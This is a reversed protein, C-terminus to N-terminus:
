NRGTKGAYAEVFGTMQFQKRLNSWALQMAVDTYEHPLDDTLTTDVAFKFPTYADGKYFNQYQSLDQKLGDVLPNINEYSLHGLMHDFSRNEFQLIVITKVLDLM